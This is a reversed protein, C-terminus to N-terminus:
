EDDYAGRLIEADDDVPVNRFGRRPQLNDFLPMARLQVELWAWTAGVVGILVYPIAALYDVIQNSSGGGFARSDGLRISSHSFRLLTLFSELHFGAALFVALGTSGGNHKVWWLGGLGAFLFPALAISLWFFASHSEPVYVDTCM